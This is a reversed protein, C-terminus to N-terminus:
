ASRRQGLEYFALAGAGRMSSRKDDPVITIRTAALARRFAYAGAAALVRAELTAFSTAVGGTIVIAEPNLGNVVIGLMAGLADVADDIIATAWPEGAAAREFVFAADGRGGAAEAIGRGSAYLVLCGRGGCWCPKGDFKVPVHGLEAGFGRSGRVIRGDIVIGSGLGTGAALMVFSSVDRGIGFRWEGLTLANVDNDVFAPL